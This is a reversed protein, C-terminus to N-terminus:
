HAGHGDVLEWCVETPVVAIRRNRRGTVQCPAGRSTRGDSSVSSWRPMGRRM